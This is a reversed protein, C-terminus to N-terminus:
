SGALPKPYYLGPMEGELDCNIGVLRVYAEGGGDHGVALGVTLGDVTVAPGDAEECGEATQSSGGHNDQLSAKVAEATDRAAQSPDGEQVEALGVANVVLDLGAFAERRDILHLQDM